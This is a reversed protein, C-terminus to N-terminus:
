PRASQMGALAPAWRISGLGIVTSQVFPLDMVFSSSFSGPLARRTLIGGGSDDGVKPRGYPEAIPADDFVTTAV